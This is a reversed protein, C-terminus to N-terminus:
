SPARAVREILQQDFGFCGALIWQRRFLAFPHIGRGNATLQQGLVQLGGSRYGREQGVGFGAAVQVIDLVSAFDRRLGPGHVAQFPLAPWCRWMRRHGSRM